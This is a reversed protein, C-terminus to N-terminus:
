ASYPMHAIVMFNFPLGPKFYKSTKTFLIKYPSTVIYIDDLESQLMNSGADTIVTVTLYLRWQLMDEAKPFYKVLDKRELTATGEGQSIPIRKLSETISKKENDKKLGFLAFAKGNVPKGYLYMAINVFENGHAAFSPTGFEFRHPKIPLDLFYHSILFTSEFCKFKAFITVNFDKDNLYFFNQRKQLKIEFSPLVYEKVEFNTAYNQVDTGQYKASITWEGLSALDSLQYSLSSIGTDNENKIFEKKVIMKQPTSIEVDVSKKMPNMNPDMTFIRYLVKSGPTYIPKDTQIFIYGSQFSTLIAKELNCLSSRVTVYVFQKKNPTRPVKESPITLKVTGLFGNGYNVSVRKHIFNYIKGPFDQIIVDADFTYGHSNVIITEESDLRLVSPTIMYCLAAMSTPFAEAADGKVLAAQLAIKRVPFLRNLILFPEPFKVKASLRLTALVGDELRARLMQGPTKAQSTSRM